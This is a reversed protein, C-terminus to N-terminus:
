FVGEASFVAGRAALNPQVQVRLRARRESDDPSTLWWYVGFGISALAVTTSVTALVASRQADKGYVVAQEDCGGVCHRNRDAWAGKAHLGFYTGLVLGAGGVGFASGIILSRAGGRDDGGRDIPQPAPAPVIRLADDLEPLPLSVKAQVGVDTRATVTAKGPAGARVVHDGPDVPMDTNWAAAGLRMGDLEIWM